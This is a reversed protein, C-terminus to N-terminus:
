HLNYIYCDYILVIVSSVSREKIIYILLLASKEMDNLIEHLMRMTTSFSIGAAVVSGLIPIYRSFEEAVGAVAQGQLLMFVLKQIDTLFYVSVRGIQEKLEKLPITHLTAIRELSKDDLGLQKEYEVVAKIIIGQDVVFSLGPVRIAAVGQCNMTMSLIVAQRKYAPYEKLQTEIMLGYDYKTTQSLLGSIVFVKANPDVKKIYELSNNRIRELVTETDFTAPHDRAENILDIDVHTRVFFFSKEYQKVEQSLWLDNETFRTRSIILFFDYQGYNVKELYTAKPFNPTGVGPLDCFKLNTNEPHVYERVCDTTETVGTSAAGEDDLYPFVKLM